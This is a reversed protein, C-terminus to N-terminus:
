EAIQEWGDSAPQIQFGGRGPVFVSGAVAGQCLALIVLSDQKGEVSGRCVSRGTGSTERQSFVAVHQENSFLNLSVLLPPAFPRARLVATVAPNLRALRSRRYASPPRIQGAPQIAPGPDLFLNSPLPQEDAWLAGSLCFVAAVIPATFLRAIAS